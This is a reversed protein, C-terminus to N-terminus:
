DRGLGEQSGYGSRNKGKITKEGPEGGHLGIRRSRIPCLIPNTYGITSHAAPDDSVITFHSGFGERRVAWPQSQRYAEFDRNSEM